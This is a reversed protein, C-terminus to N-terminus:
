GQKLLPENPKLSPLEGRDAETRAIYVAATLDGTVNLTTRCMDLIRDVGIILFIYEPEVGVITLVLALLPISGGPVGAAGVATIVSMLVVILQQTLSLDAGAVQALFVVTVGEFLATGNMNMTAGLPLVFSAVPAPVNLEDQATKISTPLTASSSSTSFATIIVAKSKAFFRLPNMRGLVSVLIPLVVFMQIALGALVVAVYKGLVFILDFGFVATNSFILCFVGVPAIKMAVGIIFVMLQGVMELGDIVIDAKPGPMRTLGIGVLIALTIIGLMQKESTAAAIPNRPVLMEMFTNVDFEPPTEKEKAEDGFEAQLQTITEEPLGKGPEVINVLTLGITVGCVMTLLFYGFTKLGMRGLQGLDGLKAVGVVLSAFVLPVVTMILLRLFLEGIPKTVNNVIPQLDAKTFLANCTCGVVAGLVLGGLIWWHPVKLEYNSSM